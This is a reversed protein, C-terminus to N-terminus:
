VTNNKILKLIRRRMKYQNFYEYCKALSITFSSQKKLNSCIYEPSQDGLRKFETDDFEILKIKEQTNFKIYILPDGEKIDIETTGPKFIFAPKASPRYWQGIDFSASISFTNNVFSNSEYYAPLQTAILSKESFFLYGMGLQHIGFKGQSEGLFAKAFNMEQNVVKITSKGMGIHLKLDVPSKIVFINKLDDVIAPCRAVLPGFFEQYDMHKLLPVPEPVRMSSLIADTGFGIRQLDDIGPNSRTWYVNITM